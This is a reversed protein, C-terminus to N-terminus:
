RTVMWVAWWVFAIGNLAASFLLAHRSGRGQSRYHVLELAQRVVKEDLVALARKTHDLEMQLAISRDLERVYIGESM